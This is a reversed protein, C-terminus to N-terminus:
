LHQSLMQVLADPNDANLWHGGDVEHFHVRANTRSIQQVRAVAAASLVSSQTAKVIHVHAQGPPSEVVSWLDTEFFSQLLQEIAALEFRWRYSKGSQELNTAMWQATNLAVGQESLAAVLDQRAAFETPLGRVIDLMEWASGGPAKAEPTSDVVWIQQLKDGHAAAYLMAVKGGFSHGLIGAPQEKLDRALEAIDNAASVLTHPPAFGQSAGHQRLDILRIDWDMRERALRRAISSWNRGAGFIGHLMYLTQSAAGGEVTDYSLGM